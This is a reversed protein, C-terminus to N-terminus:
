EEVLPRLWTTDEPKEVLYINLKKGSKVAINRFAELSRESNHDPVLCIVIKKASCEALVRTLVYTTGPSYIEGFNVDTIMYIVDVDDNVVTELAPVIRTIGIPALEWVRSLIKLVTSVDTLKTWDTVIIPRENFAVIKISGRKMYIYSVLTTTMLKALVHKRVRSNPVNEIMSGSTDLLIALKPEALRYRGRVNLPRRITRLTTVNPIAIGHTTVTAEIDLDAIDDGIRWITLRERGHSCCTAVSTAPAVSLPILGLRSVLRLLVRDRVDREDVKVVNEVMDSVEGSASRAKELYQMVLLTCKKLDGYDEKTLLLECAEALDDITLRYEVDNAYFGLDSNHNDRSSNAIKSLDLIKLVDLYFRYIDHSIEELSKLELRPKGELIHKM